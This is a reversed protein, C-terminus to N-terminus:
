QAFRTDCNQDDTVCKETEERRENTGSPGSLLLLLLMYDFLSRTRWRSEEEGGRERQKREM